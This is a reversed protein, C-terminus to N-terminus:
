NNRFSYLERTFTKYIQGKRSYIKKRYGYL